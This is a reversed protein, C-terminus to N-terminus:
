RWFETPKTSYRVIGEKIKLTCRVSPRPVYLYRSRNITEPFLPYPIPDPLPINGPVHMPPYPHPVTLAQFLIVGRAAM